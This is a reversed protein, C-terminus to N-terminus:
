VVNEMISDTISSFMEKIENRKATTNAFAAGGPVENDKLAFVPVGIENAKQLM